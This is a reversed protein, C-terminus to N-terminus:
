PETPYGSNDPIKQQPEKTGGNTKNNTWNAATNGGIYTMSVMGIWMISTTLIDSLEKSGKIQQISYISICTIIFLTICTIIFKRSNYKPNLNM